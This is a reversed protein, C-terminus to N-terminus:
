FSRKKSLTKLVKNKGPAAINGHNEQIWAEANDVQEAMTAGEFAPYKDLGHEKALSFAAKGSLRIGEVMTPVVYTKGGETFSGLRVNSSSGDANKVKPHKTPFTWAGGGGSSGGPM